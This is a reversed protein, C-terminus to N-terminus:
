KKLQREKLFKETTQVLLTDGVCAALGKVAILYLEEIRRGDRMGKFLDTPAQGVIQMNKNYEKGIQLLIVDEKNNSKLEAM